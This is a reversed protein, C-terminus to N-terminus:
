SDGVQWEKPLFHSSFTSIAFQDTMGAIYDCVVRGKKTGDELMDLYKKPLQEIHNGEMYYYYLQELLAMAKGEERKAVPNTYVNKFMFKRLDFLAENTEKSLVIDDRDMSNIIIDHILHDLRSKTDYGLTKRIELPIDDECLIKARIADDFDSNVYAIKDSLRVIKGELTHPKTHTQHNLIGDRVEWTLNLGKGSKELKDVIRLSQVNHEFGGEYVKNLVFEGAHGFPTHGLDHGLAIAEVLDENLRLAKAITRANQSVELTHSLRTRYHDGKPTLFVQTKNKLRRFSKSHLIRDRDRQFVPRIDCQEEQVLRGKSNISLCAFPSLNEKEMKEIQERITM